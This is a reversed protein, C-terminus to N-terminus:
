ANRFSRVMELSGRPDFHAWLLGLFIAGTLIGTLVTTAPVGRYRDELNGAALVGMAIGLAALLGLLALTWTDLIHTGLHFDVLSVATLFLLTLSVTAFARSLGRLTKEALGAVVGLGTVIGAMGKLPLALAITSAGSLLSHIIYAPVSLFLKWGGAKGPDAWDPRSPTLPIANWMTTGYAQFRAAIEAAPYRLTHLIWASTVSFFIGLVLVALWFWQNGIFHALLLLGTYGGFVWSAIRIIQWTYYPVDLVAAHATTITISLANTLATRFATAGPRNLFWGAIILGVLTLIM